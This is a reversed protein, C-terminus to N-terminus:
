KTACLGNYCVENGGCDADSDCCTYGEKCTNEDTSQQETVQEEHSPTKVVVGPCTDWISSSAPAIWDQRWINSLGERVRCIQCDAPIDLTRDYCENETEDSFILNGKSDTVEVYIKFADNSTGEDKCGVMRMKDVPNQAEVIPTSGWGTNGACQGFYARQDCTPSFIGDDNNRWYVKVGDLQTCSLKGGEIGNFRYPVCSMMSVRLNGNVAPLVGDPMADLFPKDCGNRGGIQDWYSQTFPSYGSKQEQPLMDPNFNGFNLGSAHEGVGLVFGYYDPYPGLNPLTQTWGAQQVERVQYGAAILGSFVYEGNEDTETTDYPNCVWGRGDPLCQTLEITWGVLGEESDGDRVGNNNRDFFKMGSVSATAAPMITFQLSNTYHPVWEYVDDCHRHGWWWYCEEGTKEYVFYKVKVDVIGPNQIKSAPVNGWLHEWNSGSEGSTSAIVYGDFVIKPDHSSGSPNPINGGYVDIRFSSGDETVSTPNMSNIYPGAAAVPAVVMALLFVALMAFSLKYNNM